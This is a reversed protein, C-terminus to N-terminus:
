AAVDADSISLSIILLGAVRDRGVLQQFPRQEPAEADFLMLDYERRDGRGLREVVGRLREIVSPATFFPVVVGIAMARGISLNRATANVRYGLEDVSAQVRERTPELVLPSDNLVRSVTAASVGAHRAVDRITPGPRRGWLRFANVLARTRLAQCEGKFRTGIPIFGTEHATSNSSARIVCDRWRSTALRKTPGWIPYTATM